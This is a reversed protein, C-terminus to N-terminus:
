GHNVDNWLEDCHVDNEKRHEECLCVWNNEEEKYMTRQHYWEGPKGCEMCPGPEGNVFCDSDDRKDIGLTQGPGAKTQIRDTM